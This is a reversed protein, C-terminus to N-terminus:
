AGLSAHREGVSCSAVTEVKGASSSRHRALAAEIAAIAENTPLPMVTGVEGSFEVAKRQPYCYKALTEWIRIRQDITAEPDIGLLMLNQLPDGAWDKPALGLERIREACEEM